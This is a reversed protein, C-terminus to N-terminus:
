LYVARRLGARGKGRRPWRRRYLPKVRERMERRGILRGGYKSLRLLEEDVKRYRVDCRLWDELGPLGIGLTPLALLQVVETEKLKLEWELRSLQLSGLGRDKMKAVTEAERMQEGATVEEHSVVPRQQQYVLGAAWAALSKAGDGVRVERGGEKGDKGDKGEKEKWEPWWASEGSLLGGVDLTAYVAPLTYRAKGPAYRGLVAALDKRGRDGLAERFPKHHAMDFPAVRIKCPLRHLIRVWYRGDFLSTTAWGRPKWASPPKNLRRAFPLESFTISPPPRNTPHPARSLFWRQPQPQRRDNPTTNTTYPLPTFLTSRIVYPKPDPQEAPNPALSPFLMSVLPTLQAPQPLEREPTVLSLLRRIVLAAVHRYHTLRKQLTARSASSKRPVAPLSFEPLTVIATGANPSFEHIAVRNFLRDAEAEVSAVRAQCRAALRLISPKQLAEPLKHNKDMYRVSNRMTLTRDANTHDEFWPIKNEVCTAILREKSFNLLPRYVMVGGDEVDLPVLRPARKNGIGEYDDLYATAVDAKLGAEIERAIVAPDVEARLGSKLLKRERSSPAIHYLPNGSRQDDVFGSQYVGHIDYCEPIDTAPRMGQLGRYGHGSLLRMMVTEYQDDQHHATLLTPIRMYSCFAGLRRYRLYRAVTEVNPLENPDADPAIVENWRAKTVQPTLGLDQIAAAVKGAEYESGKRLRHDVIVAYPRSVPHDAVKFYPDAATKIKSCLYALAMSDVGGSIALATANDATV